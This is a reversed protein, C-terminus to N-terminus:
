SVIPTVFVMRRGAPDSASRGEVCLPLDKPRAAREKAQILAARPNCGETACDFDHLTTIAGAPTLRFAVGGFFAGGGFTTGYFNGDTGRILGAFPTLGDACGDTACFEYLTSLAGTPTIKFM